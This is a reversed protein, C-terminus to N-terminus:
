TPMPSFSDSTSMQQTWSVSVAIGGYCGHACVGKGEERQGRQVRSTESDWTVFSLDTVMLSSKRWRCAVRKGGQLLRMSPLLFGSEMPSSAEHNYLDSCRFYQFSTTKAGGKLAVSFVPDMHTSVRPPCPQGGSVLSSFMPSLIAKSLSHTGHAM